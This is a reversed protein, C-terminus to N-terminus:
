SYKLLNIAQNQQGTMCSFLLSKKNQKATTDKYQFCVGNDKAPRPIGLVPPRRSLVGSLLTEGQAGVSVQAPAATQRWTSKLHRKWM